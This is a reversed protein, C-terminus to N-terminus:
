WLPCLAATAASSSHTTASKSSWLGGLENFVGVAAELRARVGHTPVTQGKAMRRGVRRLLAESEEPGVGETLVDLLRRLM